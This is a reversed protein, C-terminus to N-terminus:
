KIKSRERFDELENKAREIERKPTKQTKKLFHHLLIFGDDTYAAFLIRNRIPRLEWIDEELHKMYPEGASTGYTKLTNIYDHIKTVNIRSDKSTKSSLEQIYQFVPENGKLDRYFIIKYMYRGWDNLRIIVM